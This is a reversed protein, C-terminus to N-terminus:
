LSFKGHNVHRLFSAALFVRVQDSGLAFVGLLMLLDTVDDM